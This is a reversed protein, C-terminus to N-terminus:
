KIKLDEVEQLLIPFNDIIGYERLCKLIVSLRSNVATRIAKEAQQHTTWYGDKCPIMEAFTKVYRKM